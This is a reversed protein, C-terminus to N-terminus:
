SEESKLINAKLQELLTVLRQIAERLRDFEERTMHQTFREPDSFAAALHSPAIGALQAMLRLAPIDPSIPETM